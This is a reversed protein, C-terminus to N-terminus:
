ASRIDGAKFQLAEIENHSLSRVHHGTGDFGAKKAAAVAAETAKEANAFAVNYYAYEPPADKPVSSRKVGVVWGGASLENSMNSYGGTSQIRSGATATCGLFGECM